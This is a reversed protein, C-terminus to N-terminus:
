STHLEYTNYPKTPIYSPLKTKRFEVINFHYDRLYNKCETYSLYIEKKRKYTAIFDTSLYDSSSIFDEFVRRPAKPLFKPFSNQKSWKKYLKMNTVWNPKNDKIWKKADTYSIEYKKSRGKGGEDSNTLKKNKYNNIWFIEKEEWESIDVKEIIKINIESGNNYVSNIWCEKYTRKNKSDNIHDRLRKKLNNTKGVYRIDDEKGIEYLAYIYM